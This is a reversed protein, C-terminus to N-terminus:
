LDLAAELDKANRGGGHERKESRIAQIHSQAEAETGPIDTSSSVIRRGAQTAARALYEESSISTNKRRIGEHQSGESRSQCQDTRSSSPSSLFPKLRRVHGRDPDYKSKTDESRLAGRMKWNYSATNDTPLSGQIEKKGQSFPRPDQVDNKTMHFSPQSIMDPAAPVTNYTSHVGSGGSAPNSSGELEERLYEERLNRTSSTSLRIPLPQPSSFSRDNHSLKLSSWM